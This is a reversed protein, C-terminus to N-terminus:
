MQKEDALWFFLKMVLIFLIFPPLFFIVLIIQLISKIIELMIFHSVGYTASLQSAALGNILHGM